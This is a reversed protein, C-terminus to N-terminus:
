LVMYPLSSSLGTALLAKALKDDSVNGEMTNGGVLTVTVPRLMVAKALVVVIAPLTPSEGVVGLM